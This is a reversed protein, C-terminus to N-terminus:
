EIGGKIVANFLMDMPIGSECGDENRRLVRYGEACSEAYIAGESSSSIGYSYRRSLGDVYACFLTGDHRLVMVDSVIKEVDPMVHTSVVVSQDDRLHRMLLKRFMGRSPLDMGNLPEDLLMLGAGLSLLFSFMFKHRNGLSLQELSPTAPDIGFEKLCDDLVARNFRPYFICNLSVFKELSENRLEFEAPMFVIDQLTEVKRDAVKEGDHLLEGKKPFLLGAMLKLLTSKGAGNLGLLGYIRGDEIDASADRIVTQGYEYWYWVEKLETMVYFVKQVTGGYRYLAFTYM